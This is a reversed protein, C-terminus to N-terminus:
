RRRLEEALIRALQLAILSMIDAAVLALLAIFGFMKPGKGQGTPKRELERLNGPPSPM